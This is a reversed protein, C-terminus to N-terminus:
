CVILDGLVFLPYTEQRLHPLYNLMDQRAAVHNEGYIFTLYFSTTTPLHLAHFHIFQKHSIIPTLTYFTPDSLVMIRGYPAEVLNHHVSWHPNILNAAKLTLDFNLKTELIGFIGLNNDSIIQKAQVLKIELHAGRINWFGIKQLM